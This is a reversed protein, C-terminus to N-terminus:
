CRYEFTYFLLSPNSIYIPSANSLASLADIAEKYTGVAGTLLAKGYTPDVLALFGDILPQDIFHATDALGYCFQM